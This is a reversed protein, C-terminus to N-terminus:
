QLTNEQTHQHQCSRCLRTAVHFTCCCFVLHWRYWTPLFFCIAGPQHCFFLHCQCWTSPFLLHCPVLNLSAVSSVQEPNVLFIHYWTSPPSMPPVQVMNASFLWMTDHQCLWIAHCWTSIFFCIAGLEHCLGSLVPM